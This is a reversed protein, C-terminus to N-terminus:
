NSTLNFDKTNEGAELELSLESARNYREPIYQVVQEVQSPGGDLNEARVMRGTARTASILVRHKGALMGNGEPIEYTGNAIKASGGPGTAGEIPDLRINGDPIPQGDFTVQGTLSCTDSGCGVIGCALSLLMPLWFSSNRTGDFFSKFTM